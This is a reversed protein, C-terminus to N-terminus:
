ELPNGTPSARRQRVFAARESWSSAKTRSTRLSRRSAAASSSSAEDSSHSSRHLFLFRVLEQRHIDVFHHPTQRVAIREQEHVAHELALCALGDTRELVDRHVLRVERTVE